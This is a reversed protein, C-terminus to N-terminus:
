KFILHFMGALVLGIAAVIVARIYVLTKRLDGSLDTLTETLIQRTENWENKMEKLTAASDEAAVTIRQFNEQTIAIFGPTDSGPQGFLQQNAKTALHESTALLRKVGLGEERGVGLAGSNVNQEM